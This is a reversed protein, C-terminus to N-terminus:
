ILLLDVKSEELQILDEASRLQRTLRALEGEFQKRLKELNGIRDIWDGLPVVVSDLGDGKKMKLLFEDHNQTDEAGPVSLSFYVGVLIHQLHHQMYSASKMHLSRPTNNKKSASRLILEISMTNLFEVINERKVNLASQGPDLDFDRFMGLLAPVLFYKSYRYKDIASLFILEQEWLSWKKDAMSSYFKLALDNHAHRVFSAANFELVSKHIFHYRFAEEQMLCAAKTIDQCFGNSDCKVGCAKCALNLCEHMQENTLVLLGKQKAVFCFNEFLYKLENDSLKSSRKRNFGPKTADHRTLLTQFLNEYFEPLTSPIMQEAKYVIVLLTLMLPTTLLGKIQAPSRDIAKLISRVRGKDPDIKELFPKHDDATLASLKYVRFSASREIGSNARSTIIMQLKPYQQALLEIENIVSGILHPDLEDFGDLLLVLKGSTAYFEFLNDDIEIDFAKFVGYLYQKFSQGREIRRLEFFIPVRKASSLEQVCLYRLFISKGQGVTGQIVCNGEQSLEGISTVIKPVNNIVVKSPYYFRMLKVEKDIQWITKVKQVADIKKYLLNISRTNRLKTLKLTASQKGLQYLDDLPRALLRAGAVLAEAM